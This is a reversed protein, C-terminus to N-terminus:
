PLLDLWQTKLKTTKETATLETSDGPQKELATLKTSDEIGQVTIPSDDSQQFASVSASALSTRLPPNDFCIAIARVSQTSSFLAEISTSYGGSGTSGARLNTIDGLTDGAGSGVQFQGGLVVDGPDCVAGSSAFPFTPSTTSAPGNVTYILAPNIQNPGPAGDEGDEGPLGREGREGQIGRPGQPGQSGTGGQGGVNNNTNICDLDFNGSYREGNGYANASLEKGNGQISEVGVGLPGNLNTTGDVGNLNSNINNCKIKKIFGSGQSKYYNDNAMDMAYNKYQDADYGYEEIAMANSFNNMSTGFPLLMVLSGLLFLLALKHM